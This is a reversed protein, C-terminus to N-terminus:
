TPRRPTFLSAIRDVPTTGAQSVPGRQQRSWVTEPRAQLVWLSRAGSPGPGLAWEMDQPGGLAREAQRGVDAIRVVEEDSVCPVQAHEGEVDARRVSGAAVDYRDAIRKPSIRRSRIERTVKDVAFWDPTVEGGVVTTGLGFAAEIVIQSRDGTTPDLTLMVGAAEAPVMKQVVVGMAVESHPVGLRARYSLAQPSFASAWCRVVHRLIAEDGRLGLWSEQQGAFSADERDESTASSRVALPVDEGGVLETAARTIHGALEGDLGAAEFLRAIQASAEAQAAADGAGEALRAVGPGLGAAALWKRYADTTVVFGDPVAAQQELLRALGFAKGGVRDAGLQGCEELRLVFAM